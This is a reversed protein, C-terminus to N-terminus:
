SVRSLNLVWYSSDQGVGPCATGYQIQQQWPWRGPRVCAQTSVDPYVFLLGRALGWLGHSPGHAQCAPAKLLVYCVGTRSERRVGGRGDM